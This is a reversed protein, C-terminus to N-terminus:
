PFPAASVSRTGIYDRVLRPGVGVLALVFAIGVCGLLITYETMTAGRRDSALIFARLHQRAARKRATAISTM